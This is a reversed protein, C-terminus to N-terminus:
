CAKLDVEEGRVFVRSVVINEPGQSDDLFVLDADAGIRLAGKRKEIGLLKAPHITAADIAEVLSCGTFRVFNRVCADITITSGALTTTGEIYAGLKDDVIITRGALSYTGPPLGMSSLADTVLIAGRPHSYYAIKVSNPHCHVGDCILGYFPRPDPKTPSPSTISPSPHHKHSIPIPLHTSGLVGIIGPDRHHFAQMANFLHTIFTTGKAVAAEADAIRAESHGISVTIGRSVLEPVAELLGELEPAITILRVAREIDGRADPKKFALEPGYRADLDTIGRPAASLVNPNHAGKKGEAIFPGEIHAGLIEAGALVSGPRPRLLPLAKHYVGTKSSVVTPLYSTCGYKLLGRSVKEIDKVLEEDSKGSEADTTFDVGFAGNIQLDIFGPAILLGKADIIEDPERYSTFFLDEPKIIRGNQFWLYSNEVIKHDQLLRCNVVKYIKAHPDPLQRSLGFSTTPTAPSGPSTPSPLIPFVNPPFRTKIPSSLSPAGDAYAVEQNKLSYHKYLPFTFRPPASPKIETSSM